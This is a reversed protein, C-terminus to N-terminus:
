RNFSSHEAFRTSEAEPQEAPHHGVIERLAAAEAHFNHCAPTNLVNTLFRSIRVTVDSMNATADGTTQKSKAM